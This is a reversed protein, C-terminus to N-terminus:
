MDSYIFLREHRYQNINNYPIRMYLPYVAFILIALINLVGLWWFRRLDTKILTKNFLSTKSNM